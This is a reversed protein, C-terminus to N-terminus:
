FSINLINEIKAKLIDFDIPKVVYDRAGRKMANRVDDERGLATTMIVPIDLEEDIMKNLFSMGNLRPMQIDLLILQPQEQKAKIIGAMGDATVLTQFGHSELFEKMSERNVDHDEVVLVKYQNPNSM